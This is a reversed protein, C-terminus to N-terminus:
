PNVKLVITILNIFFGCKIEIFLSWLKSYPITIKVIRKIKIFLNTMALTNILHKSDYTNPPM